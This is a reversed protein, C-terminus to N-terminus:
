DENKYGAGADEMLPHGQDRRSYMTGHLLASMLAVTGGHERSQNVSGNDMNPTVQRLSMDGQHIGHCTQFSAFRWPQVCGHIEEDISSPANCLITINALLETKLMM